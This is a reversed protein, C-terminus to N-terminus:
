RPKTYEAQDHAKNSVCARSWGPKVHDQQLILLRGRTVQNEKNDVAPLKVNSKQVAKLIELSPGDESVISSDEDDKDQQPNM